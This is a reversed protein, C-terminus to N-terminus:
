DWNYKSQAFESLLQWAINGYVEVLSPDQEIQHKLRRFLLCATHFKLSCYENGQLYSRATEDFIRREITYDFEKKDRIAEYGTLSQAIKSYDHVLGRVANGDPVPDIFLLSGDRKM